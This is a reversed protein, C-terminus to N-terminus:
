RGISCGVLNSSTMLRFVAVASPTVTGSVGLDALRAKLKPDALAANIEKNLKEIIDAPTNRPAGIGFWASAEYGPLYEAVTPIDPLLDLRTATTVALARLKGSKIHGITEAGIFLVQVWFCLRVTSRFSSIEDRDGGYLTVSGGCTPLLHHLLIEVEIIGRFYVRWRGLHSSCRRHFVRC